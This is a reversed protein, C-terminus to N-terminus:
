GSRQQQGQWATFKRLRAVLNRQQAITARRQEYPTADIPLPMTGDVLPEMPDDPFTPPAPPPVRDLYASLVEVCRRMDMLDLRHSVRPDASTFLECVCRKNEVTDAMWSANADLVQQYLAFTEDLTIPRKLLVNPMPKHEMYRRNAQAAARLSDFSYFDGGM